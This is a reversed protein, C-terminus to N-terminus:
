SLSPPLEAYLSFRKVGAQDEVLFDGPFEDFTEQNIERFERFLEKLKRLSTISM